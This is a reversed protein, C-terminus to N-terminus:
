HKSLFGEIDGIFNLTGTEVQETLAGLDSFDPQDVLTYEVISDTGRTTSPIRFKNWGSEKFLKWYKAQVQRNNGALWVEFKPTNHIFVVAIKLKKSKLSKPFLPFYTMDMYGQYVSGSSSHEPYKRKFHARLSMIYEMLGAYAKQIYGREMQKKYEDMYEHFSQMNLAEM